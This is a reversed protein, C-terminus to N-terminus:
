SGDDFIVKSPGYLRTVQGTTQRENGDAQLMTWGTGDDDSRWVDGDGDLLLKM